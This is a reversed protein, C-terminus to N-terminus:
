VQNYSSQRSTSRSNGGGSTFFSSQQRQFVATGPMQPLDISFGDPESNSHKPLSSFSNGAEMKSNKFALAHHFSRMRGFAKLPPPRRGTRIAVGGSSNTSDNRGSSSGDGSGGGGGGGHRESPRPAGTVAMNRVLMSSSSGVSVLQRPGGHLLPRGSSPAVSGHHQQHQPLRHTSHSINTSWSLARSFIKGARKQSAPAAATTTSNGVPSVAHHGRNNRRKVEDGQYDAAFDDSPLLIDHCLNLQSSSDMRLQSRALRNSSKMKTLKPVGSRGGSGGSTKSGFTSGHRGLPPLHHQDSGSKNSRESRTRHKMYLSLRTVNRLLRWREQATREESDNSVSAARSLLLEDMNTKLEPVEALVEKLTGQSWVRGEKMYVVRDALELFDLRDTAMFVTRRRRLLIGRIGEHFVHATIKADLSSFPADLFTCSAKSYLCRALALRQRQGGSLLVGREGVETEDGDPLLDVDANLDCAALVKRYRKERLPRGLLINDRVSANLLWPKQSVVATPGPPLNWMVDGSLRETEELLTSILATKGSGSPGVVVTLSGSKVELDINKLVTTGTKPWSFCGNRVSFAVVPMRKGGGSGSKRSRESGRGGSARNRLGDGEEDEDEEDEDTTRDLSEDARVMTLRRNPAQRFSSVETRSFFEMLRERSVMGKIFIPITVPFVSLCVTLQGLLALASFLNAATFSGEELVVYLGVTATTVIITSVSALFAMVSWFFSDRRLFKLELHRAEEIRSLMVGELCGLKVTKMGQMAETSKFMRADQAAFIRKNNGSMLKGTLFQLPVIVLCGLIVSSAGSVGMKLYLLGVLVLVKLPLAWLYHVNWIFERINLIDESALNMILGVDIGGENNAEDDDVDSGALGGCSGSPAGGSCLLSDTSSASATSATPATGRVPLRLAKSYLLVDLANKARTGAVSMLHSSTQSFSGQSSFSVMLEYGINKKKKAFHTM